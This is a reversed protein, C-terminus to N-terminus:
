WSFRAGFQLNGRIPPRSSDSWFDEALLSQM